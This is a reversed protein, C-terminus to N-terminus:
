FKILRISPDFQNPFVIANKKRLLILKILRRTKEDRNLRDVLTKKFNQIDSKTPKESDIKLQSAFILDDNVM